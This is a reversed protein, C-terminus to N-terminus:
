GLRCNALGPSNALGPNDISNSFGYFALRNALFVEDFRWKGGLASSRGRTRRILESILWNIARL